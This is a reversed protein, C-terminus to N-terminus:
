KSYKMGSVEARFYKQQPILYCRIPAGKYTVVTKERAFKLIRMKDKLKTMKIIIYRLTPKKKKLKKNNNM